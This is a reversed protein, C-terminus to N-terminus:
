EGISLYKNNLSLIIFPALVRTVAMTIFVFTEILRVDHESFLREENRTGFVDAIRVDRLYMHTGDMGLGDLLSHINAFVLQLHRVGLRKGGGHKRTIM